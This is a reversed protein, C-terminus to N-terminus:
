KWEPEDAGVVVQDKETDETDTTQRQGRHSNIHQDKV